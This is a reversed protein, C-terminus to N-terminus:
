FDRYVFSKSVVGNTYLCAIVALALVIGLSGWSPRFPRRTGPKEFIVFALGVLMWWFGILQETRGIGSWAEYNFLGGDFAYMGALVQRAQALSASRFLVFAFVVVSATFVWSLAAPMPRRLKRWVHNVVLAAGHVAGFVVFTWNPGHWFGAILMAVFTAAMAGVFTVQTMVRVMPTYLYTTIFSTLSMHWSRWYDIICRAHFPANFNEPLRVNFMWATGIAMDTYGSFDFYLQLTYALATIWGGAFSQPHAYSFGADAWRLFSDAIV